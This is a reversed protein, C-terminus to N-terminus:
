SSLLLVVDRQLADPVKDKPFSTLLMRINRVKPTAVDDCQYPIGATVQDKTLVEVTGNTMHGGAEYRGYNYSTNGICLSESGGEMLNPGFHPCNKGGYTQKMVM